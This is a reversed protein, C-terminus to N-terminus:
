PRALLAGTLMPTRTALRRVRAFGARGLLEELAAATRPRGSGMALLYFGFYADGMARAGRTGSMPEALLLPGGPPLGARAAGRVTLAAADDHDHIVRILTILDAGPPLPDALFSGGILEVRGALDRAALASRAREVVAPLDFLALELRPAAAAAAAIFAGEGGGVDLLRRHRAIPYAALVEAAVMPQSAAMLGSYAAVEEAALADPRAERAYSWYRGLRTAGAEGRLLAVPDALDAYLLGHHAIMASVGPNDILGAGLPGLGYGGGSRRPFRDRGPAGAGAALLREAARPALGLRPALQEVPQPGAHLLDFLGLRVCAVLIQAYVFGAGLDFLARARRRAIPRTFPFASAWGRFRPSALLRDRLGLWPELLRAARM